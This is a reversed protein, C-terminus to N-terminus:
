QQSRLLKLTAQDVVICHMRKNTMVSYTLWIKLLARQKEKYKDKTKKTKKVAGVKQSWFPPLKQTVYVFVRVANHNIWKDTLSENSLTM